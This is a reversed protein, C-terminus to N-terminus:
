QARTTGRAPGRRWVEAKGRPFRDCSGPPCADTPHARKLARKHTCMRRARPFLVGVAVVQGGPGQGAPTLVTDEPSAHSVAQPWCHERGASSKIGSSTSCLRQTGAGPRPRGGCEGSRSARTPESSRPRSTSRTTGCAGCSWPRTWRAWWTCPTTASQPPLSRTHTEAGRPQTTLVSPEVVRTLCLPQPVPDSLAPQQDRERIPRPGRSWRPGQSVLRATCRPVVPGRACGAGIRCM